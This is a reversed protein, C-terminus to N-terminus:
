SSEAVRACRGAAGANHERMRRSSRDLDGADDETAHRPAAAM